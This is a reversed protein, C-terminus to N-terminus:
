IHWWGHKRNFSDNTLVHMNEIMLVCATFFSFSTRCPICAIIRTVPQYIKFIYRRKSLLLIIHDSKSKSRSTRAFRFLSKSLMDRKFDRKTNFSLGSLVFTFPLKVFPYKELKRRIRKKLFTGSTNYIFVQLFHNQFDMRQPANKWLDIDLQM